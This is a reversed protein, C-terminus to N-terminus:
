ECRAVLVWLLLIVGGLVLWTSTSHRRYLFMAHDGFRWVLGALGYYRVSRALTAALVFLPIPYATVGALLMAAQFPIPLVGIAVIAFFGHQDFLARFQEFEAEIGLLDILMIGVSEYLFYGIGYGLAAACLCGLTTVLAIRWLIDRRALMYPVLVLEIPIPVIITELFSALFIAWLSHNSEIIRRAWREIREERRDPKPTQRHSVDDV